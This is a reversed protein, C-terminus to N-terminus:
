SFIGFPDDPNTTPENKKEPTPDVPQTSDFMAFPDEEVEAKSKALLALPDNEDVAEVEVKKQDGNEKSPHKKEQDKNEEKDPDQDFTNMLDVVIESKEVSSRREEIVIPLDVEGCSVGEFLEIAGGIVELAEFAQVIVAEMEEGGGGIVLRQVLEEVEGRLPKAQEVLSPLIDSQELFEEM